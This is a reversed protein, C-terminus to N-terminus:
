AIDAMAAKKRARDARVASVHDLMLAIILVLGQLMTSIHTPLGLHIVGSTFVQVLLLGFFASGISGSGGTFAVGGLVAASLADFNPSLVQIKTPSGMKKQCAWVIGTLVHMVGANIFLITQIKNGNIGALRAAIPNGGVLYCSRGFKTHKMILYYIVLLVVSIIFLLPVYGGFFAKKGLALFSARNIMVNNARTWLTASGTYISSFGLSTIFPMLNFARGTGVIILGFVAGCLLAIILAIGWPMGNIELLKAFVVSGMAAEASAGLNVGGGILLPVVACLMIVGVCLDNFLTRINLKAFFTPKILYFVICLVITLLFLAFGKTGTIKKIRSQKGM